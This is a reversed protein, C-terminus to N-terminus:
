VDFHWGSDINDNCKKISPLDIQQKVKRTPKRIGNYMSVENFFHLGIKEAQDPFLTGSQTYQYFMGQDPEDDLIYFTAVVAENGVFITEVAERFKIFAERISDLTKQDPTQM